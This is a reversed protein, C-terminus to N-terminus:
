TTMITSLTASASDASYTCNTAATIDRIRKREHLYQINCLNPFGNLIAVEHHRDQIVGNQFIM